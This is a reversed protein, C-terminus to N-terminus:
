LTPEWESDELPLCDDPLDDDVLYVSIGTDGVYAVIAEKGPFFPSTANILVRQGVRPRPKSAQSM